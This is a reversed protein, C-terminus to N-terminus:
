YDEDEQFSLLSSNKVQKTKEREADIRKQLDKKKKSSFDLSNKEENDKKVPKAFVIKKNEDGLSLCLYSLNIQHFKSKHSVLIELAVYITM